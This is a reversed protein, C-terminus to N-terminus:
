SPTNTEISISTKPHKMKKLTLIIILIVIGLLSSSYTVANVGINSVILGGVMGGAAIGANLSSMNWSLVQSADGRVHEIIGSQVAPNTSWQMINWIFIIMVLIISQSLFWNLLALAITFTFTATLLWTKSSWKDALFGGMSTGLTGAIGNILLIFSVFKLDYGNNLLFPNIYVFTISNATLFLFTIVLYKVVETRNLIQTEVASDEEDTNFNLESATPLYRVMLFAAIFSIAIIFVFTARWGLWGGLITGIPVGLVNAGSFGSYVIGIMKGRHEPATLMATLALVKVIILAAAASSIIRGIILITFNPSIVILANGFIFFAITWLLVTKAHYKNTLKVLIPGCIAFTVAYLTVLQGIWAESVHLDRSMLNMIGAVMMEVMGVIFVSIIFTFVRMFSM